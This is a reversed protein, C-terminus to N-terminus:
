NLQEVSSPAFLPNNISLKRLILTFKVGETNQANQSYFYGFHPAVGKWFNAVKPFTLLKM